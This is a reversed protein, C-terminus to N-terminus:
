GCGEQDLTYDYIKVSIRHQQSYRRTFYTPFRIFILDNEIFGNQLGLNIRNSFVNNNIAHKLIDNINNITIFGSLNNIYEGSATVGSYTKFLEYLQPIRHIRSERHNRSDRCYKWNRSCSNRNSMNEQLSWKWMSRATSSIQHVQPNTWRINQHALQTPSPM